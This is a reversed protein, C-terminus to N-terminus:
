QEGDSGDMEKLDDGRGLAVGRRPTENRIVSRPTGPRRKAAEGDAAVMQVQIALTTTQRRRWRRSRRNVRVKLVGRSLWSAPLQDHM